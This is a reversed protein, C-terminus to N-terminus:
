QFLGADPSAPRGARFGPHHRVAKFFRQVTAPAIKYHVLRAQGGQRMCAPRKLRM